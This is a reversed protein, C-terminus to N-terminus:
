PKPKDKPKPAPCNHKLHCHIARAPRTVLHLWQAPTAVMVALQVITVLLSSTNM